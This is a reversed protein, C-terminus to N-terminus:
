VPVACHCRMGLCHGAERRSMVVAYLFVQEVDTEPLDGFIWLGALKRVERATSSHVERSTSCHRPYTRDGWYSSVSVWKGLLCWAVAAAALQALLCWHTRGVVRHLCIYSSRGAYVELPLRKESVLCGTGGGLRDLRVTWCAAGPVDTWCTMIMSSITQHLVFRAWGWPIKATQQEVSRAGHLVWYAVAKKRIIETLASRSL